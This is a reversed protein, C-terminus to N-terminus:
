KRPVLTFARRVARAILYGVTTAPGAYRLADGRGTCAIAVSDTSTGSAREGDRARENWEVLTITKAETAVIVANTMAAPTLAGDILVITNITGASAMAMPLSVGACMANSLGITALAVVQLGDHAEIAVGANQTWAATMMGVFSEAVGCEHAFTHLDNEPHAGDYGKVVHMNIIHRTAFMGGNVVASSLVSLPADSAVRVAREDIALNVGPFISDHACAV